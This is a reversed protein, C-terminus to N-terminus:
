AEAERVLKVFVDHLPPREVSLTAVGHGSQILRTLVPEIGEDPVQFAFGDGAATVGPPLFQLMDPGSTRPVLLAQMPLLARAEDVTGEFRRRGGAIVALRDCLRQAHAMV